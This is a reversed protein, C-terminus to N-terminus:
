YGKWQQLAEKIEPYKQRRRYPMAVRLANGLVWKLVPDTEEHLAALLAAEVLRGGDRVTLARIVGERIRRHHPLGLHRVLAPYADEYGGIFRRELVPHPTNNVLDWVSDIEYGLTRIEAVMLAEDTALVKDFAEFERDRRDREAVWKPDAELEAMLDAATKPKKRPVNIQRRVITLGIQM